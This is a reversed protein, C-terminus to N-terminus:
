GATAAAACVVSRTMGLLLWSTVTQLQVGLHRILQVYTVVFTSNQLDPMYQLVASVPIPWIYMSFGWGSIFM